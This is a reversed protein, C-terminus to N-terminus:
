HVVGDSKEAEESLDCEVEAHLAMESEVGHRALDLTVGARLRDRQDSQAANIEKQADEREHGIYSTRSDGRRIVHKVPKDRRAHAEPGRIEHQENSAIRAMPSKPMAAPVSSELAPATPASSEAIPVCPFRTAFHNEPSHIIEGPLIHITDVHVPPNRMISVVSLLIM